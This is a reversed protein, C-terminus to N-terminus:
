NDMDIQFRNLIKEMGEDDKKTSLCNGIKSGNYRVKLFVFKIIM